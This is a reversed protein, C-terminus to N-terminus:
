TESKNEQKINHTHPSPPLLSPLIMPLNIQTIQILLLGTTFEKWPPLLEEHKQLLMERGESVAVKVEETEM